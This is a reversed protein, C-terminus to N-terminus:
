AGNLRDIEKQMAALAARSSVDDDQAKTVCAACTPLENDIFQLAVRKGCYTKHTKQQIFKALPLLAGREWGIHRQPM